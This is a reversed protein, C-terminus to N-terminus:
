PVPAIRWCPQFTPFVKMETEKSGNGNSSHRVQSERPTPTEAPALVSIAKFPLVVEENGGVEAKSHTGRRRESVNAQDYAAAFEPQSRRLTEVHRNLRKTLIRSTEAIAEEIAATTVARNDIAKAPANLVLQFADIKEALDDILDNSLKYDADMAALNERALGMVRNAIVVGDAARRNLVATRSFTVDAELEVNGVEEAYAAIRSSVEMVADTMEVRSAQKAATKGQSGIVQRQALTQLEVLSDAFLNAARTFAPITDVITKNETLVQNILAFRQRKQIQQINM